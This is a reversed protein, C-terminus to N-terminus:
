DRSSVRYVSNNRPQPFGKLWFSVPRLPRDNLVFQPTIPGARRVSFFLAFIGGSVVWWRMAGTYSGHAALVQPSVRSSSRNPPPSGLDPRGPCLQAWHRTCGRPRKWGTFFVWVFVGKYSINYVSTPVTPASAWSPYRPPTKLGRFTQHPFPVLLLWLPGSVGSPRCADIPPSPHPYENDHM